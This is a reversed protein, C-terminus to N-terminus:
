LLYLCWDKMYENDNSGCQDSIGSDIIYCGGFNRFNPKNFNINTQYWSTNKNLDSLEEFFANSIKFFNATININDNMVLILTNTLGSADGSWGIFRYGENPNATLTIETGSEYTGGNTSVSGGEGASVTLTYQTPAPTEPEPTQILSPPPSDVDDSSCSNIFVSLLIFLTTILLSKNVWNFNVM